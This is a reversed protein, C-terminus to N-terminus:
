VSRMTSDNSLFFSDSVIVISLFVYINLTSLNILSYTFLFGSPASKYDTSKCKLGQLEKNKINMGALEKNSRAPDIM